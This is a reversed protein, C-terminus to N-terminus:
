RQAGYINWLNLCAFDWEHSHFPTRALRRGKFLSIYYTVIVKVQVSLCSSTSIKRRRKNCINKIKTSPKCILLLLVCVHNTIIEWRVIGFVTKKYDNLSCVLNNMQAFIQINPQIIQVSLPLLVHNSPLWLAQLRCCLARCFFPFYSLLAIWFQVEM